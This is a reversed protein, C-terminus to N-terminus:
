SKQQAEYERALAKSVNSAPEWSDEYIEGNKGDAWEVLYQKQGKRIGDIATGQGM